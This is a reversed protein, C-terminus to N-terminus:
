IHQIRLLYTKIKTKNLTDDFYACIPDGEEVYTGIYPLGDDDLKELWEKPWEDNGFGFHQTIPDGRSRNLALDVKETKYMTGYGFGREDASKNIIMADDMDYGTYSIVAVVANFGNPFNDMGYDDYLNAKVIPTQGTQLRYLKNDSRHCLAVGPTGMTQKGMQCQYMNRPSQNFDSFPTLNALISLINTPTFEVHTHVDNQIEQPTVAINMYVQEFPGVIDEKDLPLYRVPRLM